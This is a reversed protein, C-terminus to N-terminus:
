ITSTRSPMSLRSPLGDSVFGGYAVLSAAREGSQHVVLKPLGPREPRVQHSPTRTVGPTIAIIRSSTGDAPLRKARRPWLQTPTATM